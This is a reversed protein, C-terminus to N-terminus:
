RSAIVRLAFVPHTDDSTFVLQAAPQITLWPTVVAQYTAEVLTQAGVDTRAFALGTSFARIRAGADVYLPMPADPSVAVRAFGAVAADEDLTHNAIAYAGPERGTHHWGGLRLPGFGLEFMALADDAPEDPIGHSNGATGDYVAARAIVDGGEFRVSAGPTAVPYVPTALNYAFLAIMGFTAGLLSTGAEALVFEQDAALLGARLTLPGFPQEVWAEFLRVDPEAVNNSVGLVEGLRTSLGDGHIAFGALRAAGLRDDDGLIALDFDLALMALGAVATRDDDLGPAVFVEGAYAAALVLGHEIEVDAAAPTGFLLLAIM